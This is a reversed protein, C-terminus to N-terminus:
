NTDIDLIINALHDMDPNAISRHPEPYELALHQHFTDVEMSGLRPEDGNNPLVVEDFWIQGSRALSNAMQQLGQGHLIMNALTPDSLIIANLTSINSNLRQTLDDPNIADQIDMYYDDDLTQSLPNDEQIVAM